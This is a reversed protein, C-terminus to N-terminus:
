SNNKLFRLQERTATRIAEESNLSPQWGLQHLKSVDYRYKPVDGPWGGKGGTYEFAVNKLDMEQAVIEAIRSVTIADDHPAINFLNFRECAHKKIFLVGNILDKVYIYPKEQEGDGLIVLKKSDATLKNIFDFVVGHTGREGTVNPPRM